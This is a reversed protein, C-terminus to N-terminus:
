AASRAQRQRTLAQRLADALEERERPALFAGLVVIEGHSRLTLRCDHEGMRDLEVKVWTPPVRWSASRGYSDIRRVEVATDTLRVTEVLRGSRYSARFAVYILLVDLGLFGFVPWAGATIFVIGSTFSIAALAAMLLLFGREGLSRNPRLVADFYTKETMSIEFRVFVM